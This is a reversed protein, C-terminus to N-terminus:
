NQQKKVVPTHFTETGSKTTAAKVVGDKANENVGDHKDGSDNVKIQKKSQEHKIDVPSEEIEKGDEAVESDENVTETDELVVEAMEKSANEESIELNEETEDINEDPKSQLPEIVDMLERNVQPNQVFDSIDNPCSPCKMVTKQARLTRRGECTRQKVFEQGSFAGELCPKWFNHSCPTTLPLTM